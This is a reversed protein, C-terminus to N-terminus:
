TPLRMEIKENMEKGTLGTRMRVRRPNGFTLMM